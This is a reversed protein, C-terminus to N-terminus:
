PAYRDTTTGDGLLGDRNWGWCSFGGDELSACTYTGVTRIEKVNSLGSANSWYGPPTGLSGTGLQGWPNESFSFCRVSGDALRACTTSGAASLQTVCGPFGVPTFYPGADPRLHQETPEPSSSAGACLVEGFMTRVCTLVLGASVEVVGRLVGSPTLATRPRHVLGDVDGNGLAGNRNGGWCSLTGDEHLACVSNGGMSLDRAPKIRMVQQWTYNPDRTGNGLVGERNPGRCYVDGAEALACMSTYVGVRKVPGLGVERTPTTFAFDGVVGDLKCGWSYLGGDMTVAAVQCGGGRGGGLGLSEVNEVGVVLKPLYSPVTTGDGLQHANNTGWCEVHGDM